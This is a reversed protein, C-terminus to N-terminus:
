GGRAPRYLHTPAACGESLREARRLNDIPIAASMGLEAIARYIAPAHDGLMDYPLNALWFIQDINVEGPQHDTYDAGLLKEVHRWVASPLLRTSLTYVRADPDFPPPPPPPRLTARRFVNGGEDYEGNNPGRYLYPRVNEFAFRTPDFIRDEQGHVQVWGHHIFPAQARRGFYSRPHVKGLFHGYVAVGVVFGHDVCATAIEMCRGAWKKAPGLKAEIETLTPSKM